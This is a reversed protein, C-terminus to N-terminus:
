EAYGAVEKLFKNIVASELNLQMHWQESLLIKRKEANGEPIKGMGPVMNHAMEM